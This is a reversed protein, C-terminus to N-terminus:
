NLYIKLGWFTAWSQRSFDAMTVHSWLSICYGNDLMLNRRKSVAIFNPSSLNLNIYSRNIYAYKLELLTNRSWRSKCTVSLFVNGFCEFERKYWIFVEFFTEKMNLIYIIKEQLWLTLAIQAIKSLRTDAFQQDINNCRGYECSIGVWCYCFSKLM